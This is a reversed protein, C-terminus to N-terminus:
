MLQTFRQIQPPAALLPGAKAFAKALHPTTMHADAAAQDAWSEVTVFEVPNEDNHFLEYSACGKEGRTPPVLAELAQRVAKVSEPQSMIRAIIKIMITEKYETLFYGALV